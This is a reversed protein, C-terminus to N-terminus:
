RGAIRRVPAECGTDPDGLTRCATTITSCSRPSMTACLEKTTRSPRCCESACRRSTRSRAVTPKPSTSSAHTGVLTAIRRAGGLPPLTTSDGLALWRTTATEPHAGVASTIEWYAGRDREWMLFEFAHPGASLEIVGRTDADDTRSSVIMSGDRDLAGRGHVSRFPAGIIRLGMGEDSRVQITYTGSEPVWLTGKAISIFDDDNADTDSPFPLPVGALVPGGASSARPDAVDAIAYQRSVVVDPILEGVRIREIAAAVSELDDLSGWVVPLTPSGSRERAARYM